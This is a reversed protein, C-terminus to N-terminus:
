PVSGCDIAGILQHPVQPIGCPGGQCYDAKIMVSTARLALGNTGGFASWGGPSPQSIEGGYFDLRCENDKALTKAIAGGRTPSFTISPMEDFTITPDATYFSLYLIPDPQNDDPPLTDPSVDPITVGCCKDIATVVVLSGSFYPKDFQLTVAMDVDGGAPVTLPSPTQGATFSLTAEGGHFVWPTPQAGAGSGAADPPGAADASVSSGEKACSAVVVALLCVTATVKM